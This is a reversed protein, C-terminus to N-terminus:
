KRIYIIGITNPGCNSSVTASAETVYINKFKGTKELIKKVANIERVSCGAHTIFVREPDINDSKILSSSIYKVEANEYNGGWFRKLHIKGNKIELLPHIGFLDCIKKINENVKGNNYLYDANKVLFSTSVKHRYEELDNIIEESTKGEAALKSARIAIHGTGTSLTRSDFLKIRKADDGMIKLAECCNRYSNSIESSITIHIMEECKKLQDTFFRICENTEPVLSRANGGSEIYELVNVATIEDLDRFCGSDTVVKFYIIGIGYKDLLSDSLDSTCDTTVAIKKRSM